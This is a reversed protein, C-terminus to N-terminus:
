RAGAIGLLLQALPVRMMEEGRCQGPTIANIAACALDAQPQAVAVTPTAYSMATAGSVPDVSRTFATAIPPIMAIIEQLSGVNASIWRLLPVTSDLVKFIPDGFITTIDNLMPLLQQFGDVIPPVEVFLENNVQDIVPTFRIMMSKIDSWGLAISSALSSLADILSGIRGIAADPSKLASGLKNIIDNLQPGSGVTANDLASIGDGLVTRASGAESGLTESFLKALSDLTETLSKPTLTKTICIGSDWNETTTGMGLVALDRDAVLTDSMTTASVDAPLPFKADVDFEVRVTPGQPTTATVTGVPMGRMTVHNGPYLGISDAMVACYSTMEKTPKMIVFYAVTTVLAIVVVGAVSMFARAGLMKNLM